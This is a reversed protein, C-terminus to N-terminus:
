MKLDMAWRQRVVDKIYESYLKAGNKNLHFGDTRFFINENSHSYFNRCFNRSPLQPSEMCGLSYAPAIYFNNLATLKKDLKYYEETFSVEDSCYKFFTCNTKKFTLPPPLLIVSVDYDSFFKAVKKLYKESLEMEETIHNALIVKTVGSTLLERLKSYIEKCEENPLLPCGAGGLQIINKTLHRIAHAADASVSDGFILITNEDIKKPSCSFNQIFDDINTIGDIGNFQCEGAHIKNRRDKDLKNWSDWLEYNFNPNRESIENSFLHMLLGIFVLVSISFAILVFIYKRTLFLQNRFPQEIFKWTFWALILSTFCLNILLIESVEGFLRHKAFALLPQHWLYASYSILGIGVLPKFSLLYHLSTRPVAFLILLASGIVPILTYLSPFPTTKDFMVISFVIMSLGILSLIEKLLNSNQPKNNNQYFAILSGVLLEWGRTPLLYFSTNSNTNTIFHASALSAFLLISLFIILHKVGYKWFLILIIPFFIYFQEEVALSWTHLLPKLEASTDFYGSEWWFLFNSSFTSVAILSQGFDKLDFPNLWLVSFPICAVMVFFLPPLIRRARREYFNVISFEGATIESIIITTILYGSIVFFVDVGVFGGQFWSFGAHFFIVPLVALARLGDIESRYNITSINVGM